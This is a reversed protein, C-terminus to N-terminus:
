LTERPLFKLQASLLVSKVSADIDINIHFEANTTVDFKPRACKRKRGLVM